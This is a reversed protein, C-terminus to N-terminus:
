SIKTRTPVKSSGFRAAGATVIQVDDAGRHAQMSASDGCTSLCGGGAAQHAALQELASQRRAFRDPAVAREDEFGHQLEDAAGAFSITL